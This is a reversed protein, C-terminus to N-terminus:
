LNKAETGNVLTNLCSIVMGYCLQLQKSNVVTKWMLNAPILVGHLPFSADSLGKVKYSMM